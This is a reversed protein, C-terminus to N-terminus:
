FRDTRLRELSLHLAERAKRARRETTKCALFVRDRNRAIAPGLLREAEGYMPAVDVHNVGRALADDLAAAARADDGDQWFAAGGGVGGARVSPRAGRRGAPAPAPPVGGGAAPARAAGDAVPPSRPPGPRLVARGPVGDDARGLPRRGRPSGPEDRDDRRLER